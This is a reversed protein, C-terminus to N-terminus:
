NKTKRYWYKYIEKYGLKKYLKQAIINNIMVQLYTNRIGKKGAESLITKVIEKGYGKGRQSEKIVIDFVGVYNSGIVGYGCGVIENEAEKYVVIKDGAVNNLITEFTKIDEQKITNFDIVSNIWKSNFSDNIVIGNYNSQLIELTNCTQLSTIHIKKYDQKELEEDLIKHEDCGIIKYTTLLNYKKFIKDCYDMKEELKIKSPYIPNISNSRNTYGNAMRIIWGDYLLTQISPWAAMSLEEITFDM